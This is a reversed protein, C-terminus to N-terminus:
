FGDDGEDRQKYPRVRGSRMLDSSDSPPMDYLPESDGFLLYAPNARIKRMAMEMEWMSRRM